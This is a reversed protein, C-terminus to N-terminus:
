IWCDIISGVSRVGTRAVETVAGVAMDVGANLTNGVAQGLRDVHREVRQTAIEAYSKPLFASSIPRM